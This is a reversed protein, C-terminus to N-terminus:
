TIGDHAALVPLRPRQRLRPGSRIQAPDLRGGDPVAVVPHQVALLPEDRALALRAEVDHEGDGLTLLREKQDVGIRGAQADLPHRAEQVVGVEVVMRLDHELVAPHRILVADRAAAVVAGLVPDEDLPEEDRRAATAGGLAQDVECRVVRLLADGEPARDRLELADGELEGVREVSSSAALSSM